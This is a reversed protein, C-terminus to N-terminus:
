RKCHLRQMRIAIELVPSDPRGGKCVEFTSPRLAVYTPGGSVPTSQKFYSFSTCTGFSGTEYGKVEWWLFRERLESCEAHENAPYTAAVPYFDDTAWSAGKPACGILALLIIYRM